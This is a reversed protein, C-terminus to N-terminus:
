VARWGSIAAIQGGVTPGILPDIAMVAILTSLMQANRNGEYLDRVMAPSFAAGACAGLAQVMRWVILHHAGGALACGASGIVFLILGAAVSSFGILVGFITLEITGTDAGLSQGILPTAPLYLETPASAFGMLM